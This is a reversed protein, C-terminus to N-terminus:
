SAKKKLKKLLPAKGRMMLAGKAPSLSASFFSLLAPGALQALTIIIEIM